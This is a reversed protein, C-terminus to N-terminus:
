RRSEAAKDSTRQLQSKGPAVTREIKEIMGAIHEAIKDIEANRRARPLKLFDTAFVQFHQRQRIRSLVDRQETKLRSEQQAIPRGLIPLVYNGTRRSSELAEFIEFEKRCYESGIWRPTLLVILVDASRLEGEIADDWRKGTKLRETDRWITLRANVLRANVRRELETTLATILQPDTEGDDRAYSSFGRFIEQEAM